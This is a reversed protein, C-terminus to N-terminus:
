ALYEDLEDHIAQLNAPAEDLVGYKLKLDKYADNVQKLMRMLEKIQAQYNSNDVGIGVFYNFAHRFESADDSLASKMVERTTLFVDYPTSLYLNPAPSKFYDKITTDIQKQSYM